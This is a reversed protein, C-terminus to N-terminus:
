LKMFAIWLPLMNADDCISLLIVELYEVFQIDAIGIESYGNIHMNVIDDISEDWMKKISENEDEDIFIFCQYLDYKFQSLTGYDEIRTRTCKLINAIDM